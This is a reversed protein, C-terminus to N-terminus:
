LSYDREGTYDEALQVTQAMVHGDPIRNCAARLMKLSIVADITVECDAWVSIRAVSFSHVRQTIAEVLRMADQMCEARMKYQKVKLDTKM